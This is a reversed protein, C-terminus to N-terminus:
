KHRDRYRKQKAALYGPDSLQKNLQFTRFRCEESCFRAKPRLVFFDCCRQIEESEELGAEALIPIEHRWRRESQPEFRNVYEPENPASERYLGACRAIDVAYNSDLCEGAFEAFRVLITEEFSKLLDADGDGRARARLAPMAKALGGATAQSFALAITSLRADIGAEDLPERFHLATAQQRIFALTQEFEAVAEGGPNSHQGTLSSFWKLLATQDKWTTQENLVEIWSPANKM